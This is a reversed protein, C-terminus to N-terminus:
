GLRRGIYRHIAELCAKKDWKVGPWGHKYHLHRIWEADEQNDLSDVENEPPEGQREMEEADYIHDCEDDEAVPWWRTGESEYEITLIDHGAVFVQDLRTLMRIRDDFYQWPPIRPGSDGGRIEEEIVLGNLTHLFLVPSYNEWGYAMLLLNSPQPIPPNQYSDPSWNFFNEIYDDESSRLHSPRSYDCATCKYGINTHYDEFGRDPTFIYPLHRLVDVSFPSKKYGTGNGNGYVDDPNINPWGGPPPYRLSNESLKLRNLFEYFKAVPKVIRDRQNILLQPEIRRYISDLQRCTSRLDVVSRMNLLSYFIEIQLESPVDLLHVTWPIPSNKRREDEQLHYRCCWM